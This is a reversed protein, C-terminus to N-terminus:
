SVSITLLCLESVVTSKEVHRQGKCHDQLFLAPSLFLSSSLPVVSAIKSVLNSPICCLHQSDAPLQPIEWIPMQPQCNIKGFHVCRDATRCLVWVFLKWGYRRCVCDWLWIIVICEWARALWRCAFSTHVHVKVWETVCSLCHHIAECRGCRLPFLWSCLLMIFIVVYMVYVM